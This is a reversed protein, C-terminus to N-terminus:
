LMFVEYVAILIFGFEFPKKRQGFYKACVVVFACIRGFIFIYDLITDGYLASIFDPRFFPILLLIIELYIKNISLPKRSKMLHPDHM